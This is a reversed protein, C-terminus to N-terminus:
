EAVEPPAAPTRVGAARFRDLERRQDLQLDEYADFYVNVNLIREFLRGDNDRRFELDAQSLEQRIAPDAGFRTTYSILGVDELGRNLVEPRGGLAAIADAQPTPDARNTGGPTPAPLSALGQPMQLPKTPLISFEDPTDTETELNLLRPDTERSCGAVAMGIVLVTVCVRRM